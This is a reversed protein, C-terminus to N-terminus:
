YENMGGGRAKGSGEGPNLERHRASREGLYDEVVDGLESM